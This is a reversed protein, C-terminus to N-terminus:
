LTKINEIQNFLVDSQSIILKLRIILKLECHFYQWKGFYEILFLAANPM